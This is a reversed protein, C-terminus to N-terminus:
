ADAAKVEWSIGRTIRETLPQTASVLIADSYPVVSEKWM